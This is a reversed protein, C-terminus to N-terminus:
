FVIFSVGLILMSCFFLFSIYAFLTLVFKLLTKSKSQKYYALMSWYLYILGLFLWISLWSGAFGLYEFMIILLAFLLMRTHGYLHFIFHEAYCYDHRIYLLKFFAGLLLIVAILAWTGNGLFFKISSSLNKVVKQIQTMVLDKWRNGDSYKKLLEENSLAFLDNWDFSFTGRNNTISINDEINLDELVQEQLSISDTATSLTDSSLTKEEIEFLTAKFKELTDTPMESAVAISDFRAALDKTWIKKEQFVSIENLQEIGEKVQSLFLTFFTFLVILFIRLPNYYKTRKGQVFAKTLKSPIWIDRFTRWIKTEINFLNSFFDSIIASLSLINTKVKQGCHVCFKDEEDIKKECNLCEAM